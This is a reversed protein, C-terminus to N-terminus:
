SVNLSQIAEEYVSAIRKWSHRKTLKHLKDSSGDTYAKPVARAVDEPEPECFEVMGEFLQEPDGKASVVPLGAAGYELIKLSNRDDVLSVGVDSEHIFGPVMEHPVTGLYCVDQREEDVREVYERLSGDGLILLVWEDDLYEMSEVMESINYTTELGGVYILINKESWGVEAIKSRAKEIAETEPDAFVKYEVGLDTHTIEENYRRVRPIEEEYVVMVHDANKFAFKEMQAAVIYKLWGEREKMQYIPDIHDVLLPIGHRKKELAGVFAGLRTVGIIVDPSFGSLDLSIIDSFATDKVEVEHGRERLISALCHRGVSINDPKKPRLWLIKM